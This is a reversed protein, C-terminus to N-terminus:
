KEEREPLPLLEEQRQNNQALYLKVIEVGSAIALGAVGASVVIETILQWNM